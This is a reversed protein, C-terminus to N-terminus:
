VEGNWDLNLFSIWKRPDQKLSSKYVVMKAETDQLIPNVEQKFFYDFITCGTNKFGNRELIKEATEFDIM